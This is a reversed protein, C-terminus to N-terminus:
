REIGVARSDAVSVAIRRFPTQALEEPSLMSM